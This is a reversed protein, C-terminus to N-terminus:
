RIGFVKRVIWDLRSRWSTVGQVRRGTDKVNKNLMLCNLM